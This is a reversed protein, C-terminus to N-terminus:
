TCPLPSVFTQNAPKRALNASVSTATSQKTHGFKDKLRRVENDSVLPARSVAIILFCFCFFSVYGNGAVDRLFPYKVILAKSVQVYEANTPYLTYEAMMEYLVRIIKNRLKPVKHCPEKADLSMQVDKPFAPIIIVAPLRKRAPEDSCHLLIVDNNVFQSLNYVLGFKSFILFVGKLLFEAPCNTCEPSSNRSLFLLKACNILSPYRGRKKWLSAGEKLFLYGVMAETLGCDVTEGD